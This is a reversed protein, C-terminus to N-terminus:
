EASEKSPARPQRKPKGGDLEENFPVTGDANLQVPVLIGEAVMRDIERDQKVGLWVPVLVDTGALRLRHSKFGHRQVFIRTHRANLGRGRGTRYAYIIAGPPSPWTTGDWHLKAEGGGAVGQESSQSPVPAPDGPIIIVVCCGKPPAMQMFFTWVDNQM